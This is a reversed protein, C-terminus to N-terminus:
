FEYFYFYFLGAFSINFFFIPIFRDVTYIHMDCTHSHSSSIYILLLFLYVIIRITPWRFGTIIYRSTMLVGRKKKYTHTDYINVYLIFYYSISMIECIKYKSRLYELEIIEVHM